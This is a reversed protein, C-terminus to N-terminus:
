AWTLRVWPGPASPTPSEQKDKHWKGRPEPFDAARQGAAIRTATETLRRIPDGLARGLIGAAIASGGVLLLGLMGLRLLFTGVRVGPRMTLQPLFNVLALLVGIAVVAWIVWPALQRSVIWEGGVLRSVDAGPAFLRYLVNM